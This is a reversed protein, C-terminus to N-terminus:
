EDGSDKWPYPDYPQRDPGRGYRDWLYGFFAVLGFFTLWGLIVWWNRM